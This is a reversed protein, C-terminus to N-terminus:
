GNVQRANTHGPDTQLPAQQDPPIGPAPPELRNVGLDPDQRAAFARAEEEVWNLFADVMPDNAIGEPAVAYYSFDAPRFVQFPRVLRGSELADFVLATRGLMVGLGHAAAQIQAQSDTFRLGRSVDVTGAPVRLVPLWSRWWLWKEHEYINSDHLLVHHRLTEPTRLPHPGSILAPACVPFVSETMLFRVHFGPYHGLGYRLGVHVGDRDDFHAPPASLVIDLDIDPYRRQFGTLRPALWMMCLSPLVSIRLTGALPRDRVRSVARALHDLGLTLEPVLARGANSLRLGRPLRDFLVVGLHDELQRVQHSVATPTVALEDAAKAFSGHRAAAEFSRLANLPPLRRVM